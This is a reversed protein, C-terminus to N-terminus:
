DTPRTNSDSVGWWLIMYFARDNRSPKKSEPIQTPVMYANQTLMLGHLDM